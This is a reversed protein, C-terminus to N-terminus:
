INIEKHEVKEVLNVIYNFHYLEVAYREKQIKYLNKFSENSIVKNFSDKKLLIEANFMADGAMRKIELVGGSTSIKISIKENNGEGKGIFATWMTIGNERHEVTIFNEDEIKQSKFQEGIKTVHYELNM